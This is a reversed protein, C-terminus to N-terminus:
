DSPAYSEDDDSEGLDADVIRQRADGDRDPEDVDSAANLEKWEVVKRQLKKANMKITMESEVSFDAMRNRLNTHVLKQASFSRETAAETAGCALIALAVQCLEPSVNRIDVRSWFHLPNFGTADHDEKLQEVVADTTEFANLRAHFDSLQVRLAQRLNQDEAIRTLRFRRLYSVGFDLLFKEMVPFQTALSPAIDAAFAFMAAALALPANAMKVYREQVKKTAEDCAEKIWGGAAGHVRLGDLLAYMSTFVTGAHAADRQVEDTAIKFLRLMATLMDLKAWFDDIVPKRILDVSKKIALLREFCIFFTNWRTNCWKIVAKVPEKNARQMHTLRVRESKSKHFYDIIECAEDKILKLSPISLIDGVTLNLIHAACPIHLLWPFKVQLQKVVALSLNENDVAYAVVKLGKSLLDEIVKEVREVVWDATNSSEANVISTWYYADGKSLLMINTVKSRNVNTWGDSQLSVPLNSSKLTAVLDDQLKVSHSTIATRTSAASLIASPVNAQAAIFDKWEKSDALSTPLSHIAFLQAAKKELLAEAEAAGAKQLFTKLKPTLQEARQKKAAQHRERALELETYEKFKDSHRNRLHNKLNGYGNGKGTKWDCLKCAHDASDRAGRDFFQGLFLLSENSELYHIPVDKSNDLPRKRANAPVGGHPHAPDEDVDM